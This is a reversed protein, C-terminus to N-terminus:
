SLFFYNITKGNVFSRLQTKEKTKAEKGTIKQKNAAGFRFIDAFPIHGFIFILRIM